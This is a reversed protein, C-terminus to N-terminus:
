KQQQGVFMQLRGSAGILVFIFSFYFRGFHITFTVLMVSRSRGVTEIWRRQLDFCEVQKKREWSSLCWPFPRFRPTPHFASPSSAFAAASTCPSPSCSSPSCSDWTSSASAPSGSSGPTRGLAASRWRRRRRRFSCGCTSTYSYWKKSPHNKAIYLGSM